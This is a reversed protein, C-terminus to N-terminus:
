TGGPTLGHSLLVSLEGLTLRFDGSGSSRKVSLKTTQLNHRHGVFSVSVFEDKRFILPDRRDLDRGLFLTLQM